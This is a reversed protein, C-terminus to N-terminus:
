EHPMGKNDMAPTCGGSDARGQQGTSRLERKRELRAVVQQVLEHARFEIYATLFGPPAPHEDAAPESRRLLAIEDPGTGAIRRLTVERSSEKLSSASEPEAGSNRLAKLNDIYELTTAVWEVLERGREDVAGQVDPSLSGTNRLDGLYRRALLIDKFTVRDQQDREQGM